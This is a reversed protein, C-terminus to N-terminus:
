AEATHTEVRAPSHHSLSRPTKGAPSESDPLTKPRMLPSGSGTVGERCRTTGTQLLSQHSTVAAEGARQRTAQGGIGEGRRKQPTRGHRCRRGSASWGGRRSGAGLLGLGLSVALGVVSALGPGLGLAFGKMLPLDGPDFRQGHVMRVGGADVDTGAGVSDADAEGGFSTGAQNLLERGMRSAQLGKRGEQPLVLDVGDGQFRGADVPNGQVFQETGLPKLDEQDIGAVGVL